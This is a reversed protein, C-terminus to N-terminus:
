VSVVFLWNVIVCTIFINLIPLESSSWGSLIDILSIVVIELYNIVCHCWWLKSSPFNRTCMKEGSSHSLKCKILLRMPNDFRWEFVQKNLLKIRFVNRWSKIARRCVGSLEISNSIRFWVRQYWIVYIFWVFELWKNFDDNSSCNRM